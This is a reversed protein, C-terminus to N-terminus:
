LCLVLLGKALSVERMLSFAYVVVSWIIEEALM